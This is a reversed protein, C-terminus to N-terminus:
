NLTWGKSSAITKEEESLKALNTNGFTITHTGGESSYDYLANLIRILTDHNLLPSTSFTIGSQKINKVDNINVLTGPIWNLWNTTNSNIMDLKEITEISTSSAFNIFNTIKSTDFDYKTLNYCNSFVLNVMTPNWDRMFELLREEKLRRCNNFLMQQSTIKELIDFGSYDVLSICGNLILMNFSSNIGKIYQLLSSNQFVGNAYNSPVNINVNKFICYLTDSPIKSYTYQNSITKNQFYYIVYRTKYGISCPKDKSVDWTHSINQNSAPTYNAGDSTIIKSANWGYINSIVNSDNLLCIIKGAYDEVDEELISDIDWWDPQPKWGEEGGSPINEIAEAMESVKYTDTSGNKERIADAIAQINNEEYLKKSM